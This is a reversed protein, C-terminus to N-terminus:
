HNPNSNDQAEEKHYEDPYLLWKVDPMNSYFEDQKFNDYGYHGEGTYSHAEDDHESEDEEHIGSESNDMNHVQVQISPAHSNPSYSSDNSRAISDVDEIDIDEASECEDKSDIENVTADDDQEDSDSSCQESISQM